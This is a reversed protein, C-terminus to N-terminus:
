DQYYNARNDVWADVQERIWDFQRDAYLKKAVPPSIEREEGDMFVVGGVTVASLIEIAHGELQEKTVTATRFGQQDKFKRNILQRETKRYKDSDKGLLMLFMTKKEEGVLYTLVEGTAPHKLDMRAPEDIKGGLSSLDM